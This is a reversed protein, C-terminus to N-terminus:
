TAKEACVEADIVVSHAVLRGVSESLPAIHRLEIETPRLEQIWIHLKHSLQSAMALM